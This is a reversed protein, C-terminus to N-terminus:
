ILISLIEQQGTRMSNWIFLKMAKPGRRVILDLFTSNRLADTEKADISQVHDKLLVKSELFGELFIKNCKLLQVLEVRNRRLLNRHEDEM